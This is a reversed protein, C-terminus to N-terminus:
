ADLDHVIVDVDRDQYDRVSGGTTYWTEVRFGATTKNTVLCELPSSASQAGASAVAVYNANTAASSFTLDFQGTSNKSVSAFGTSQAFSPNTQGVFYAVAKPSLNTASQLAAVESQLTAIDSDAAVRESQLTDIESEATAVQGELTDIDAEATDLDSSLTTIDEIPYRADTWKEVALSSQLVVKPDNGTADLYIEAFLGDSDAVVPQAHPTTLEFDTYVTLDTVTGVEYFYLLDGSEVTTGIIAQPYRVAAM